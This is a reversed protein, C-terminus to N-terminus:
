VFKEKGDIIIRLIMQGNSCLYYRDIQIIDPIQRHCNECVVVSNETSYKGGKCGPKIRHISLTNYIDIKCIRCKGIIQKHIKKNKIINNKSVNKM